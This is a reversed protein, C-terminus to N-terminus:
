QPLTTDIDCHCITCSVLGKVRLSRALAAHHSVRWTRVRKLRQGASCCCYKPPTHEFPLKTCRAKEIRM